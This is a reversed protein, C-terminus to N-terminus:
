NRWHRASLIRGRILGVFRCEGVYWWGLQLGCGRCVCYCWAHGPFWTHLETPVGVPRGGPCDAFLLIHFRQGDPNEFDFESRGDRYVRDYERAVGRLCRVCFWDLGPDADAGWTVPEVLGQEHVPAGDSM